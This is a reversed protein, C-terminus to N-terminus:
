ATIRRQPADPENLTKRMHILIDAAYLLEADNRVGLKAMLTLKYARITKINRRFYRAIDVISYGQTTCFVIDRETQTLVQDYSYYWLNLVNDDQQHNENLWTWLQRRVLELPMTKSLIGHLATPSFDSILRKEMQNGALVIRQRDPYNKEMHNLARLCTLRETRIGSLSYILSICPAWVMASLFTAYDKFFHFHFHAAAPFLQSLGAESIACREIIAVHKSKGDTEM